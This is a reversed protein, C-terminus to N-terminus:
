PIFHLKYFCFASLSIVSLDNIKFAFLCFIDSYWPSNILLRLLLLPACFNASLFISSLFW